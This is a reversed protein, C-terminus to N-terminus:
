KTDINEHMKKAIVNVLEKYGKDNLHLPDEYWEPHKQYDINADNPNILIVRNELGEKKLYKKLEDRYADLNKYDEGKLSFWLADRYVGLKSRTNQSEEVSYNPIELIVPTINYHLLTNAIKVVYEAYYTKGFGRFSDNVGAVVICYQPCFEVVFKSSYISENKDAFLNEYIMKSTAGSHGSEIVDAKVGYQLLQEELPKEMDGRKVWSDGIMGIKLQGASPPCSPATFYSIDSGVSYKDSTIYILITFILFFAFFIKKKM